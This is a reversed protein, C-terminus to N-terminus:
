SPRFTRLAQLVRTLEVRVAHDAVLGDEGVMATTVPIAVCAAEVIAAGVYRLIKRLSDHADVAGRSSVNVWAVPKEYISGTEADGVTWDLLNKFAGPLAGAYEPTSFLLADAARIDHRLGAVASPLPDKDDDPNFAPLGAMGDYPSAEFSEPLLRAATRLVASNTSGLRLSGSVLLVRSRRDVCPKLLRRRDSM